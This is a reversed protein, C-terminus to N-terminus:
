MLMEIERQLREYMVDFYNITLNSGEGVPGSGDNKFNNLSALIKV